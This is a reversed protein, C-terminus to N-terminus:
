RLISLYLTLTFDNSIGSNNSRDRLAFTYRKDPEAIFMGFGGPSVDQATSYTGVGNVFLFTSDGDDVTIIPSLYSTYMSVELRIPNTSSSQQLRASIRFIKPRTGIYRLRYFLTDDVEWDSGSAVTRTFNNTLEVPVATFPVNATDAVFTFYDLGAM